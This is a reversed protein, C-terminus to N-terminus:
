VAERGWGVLSQLLLLLGGGLAAAGAGLGSLLDGAADAASLAFQKATAGASTAASQVASVVQAVRQKLQNDCNQKDFHSYCRNLAGVNNNVAVQHGADGGRFCTSNLIVRASIEATFAALKVALDECSDNETCKGVSRVKAKADKVAKDLKAYRSIGCDGPPHLGQGAPGLVPGSGAAQAQVTGGSCSPCAGHTPTTSAAVASARTGLLADAASCSDCKAQGVAAVGDGLPAAGRGSAASPVADGAAALAGLADAEAELAADDNVALGGAQRTPQVRGRAQQLVHALEHGLLEQGPKSDPQYRGSAFFIDHGRTFALAGISAAEPGEHIRVASFDAGFAAEMKARVAADLPRGAGGTPLLPFAAPAGHEKRQVATEKGCRLLGPDQDSSAARAPLQAQLMFM